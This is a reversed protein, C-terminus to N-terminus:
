YLFHNELELLEKICYAFRELYEKIIVQIGLLEIEGPLMHGLYEM